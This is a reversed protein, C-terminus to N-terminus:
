GHERIAFADGDRWSPRWRSWVIRSALSGLPRFKGPQGEKPINVRRVPQPRYTEKRLEETLEGRWQELGQAAIDEFSLGDVGPAGGNAKCRDDAFRLIDERDLKDYLAYFRYGPANKAKSHLADQLKRVKPPPTLM